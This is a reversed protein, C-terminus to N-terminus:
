KKNKVKEEIEKVEIKDVEEKFYELAKLYSLKKFYIVELPPQM